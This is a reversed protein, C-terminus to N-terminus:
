PSRKAGNAEEVGVEEDKLGLAETQFLDIAHEFFGRSQFRGLPNWVAGEGGIHTEDVGLILTSNGWTTLIDLINSLRSTVVRHLFRLSLEL